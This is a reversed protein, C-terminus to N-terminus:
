QQAWAQWSVVISGASQLRLWVLPAIRNNFMMNVTTDASNTQGHVTVGDFSYEVIGSGLNVVQFGATSFPIVLDPGYGDPAGGGFTTWTVTTKSFYDRKPGHTKQAPYIVFGM